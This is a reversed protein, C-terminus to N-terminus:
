SDILCAHLWTVVGSIGQTAGEVLSFLLCAAHCAKWWPESRERAFPLRHKSSLLSCNQDLPFRPDGMGQVLIGMQDWVHKITKMGPSRAPWDTVEVDLFAATDRATHPTANDQSYVFNQGFVRRGPLCVIVSFGSTAKTLTAALLVLESRGGHHIARGVM